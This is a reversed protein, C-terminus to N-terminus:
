AADTPAEARETMTYDRTIQFIRVEEVGHNRAQAALRAAAAGDAQTLSLLYGPRTVSEYVRDGPIGQPGGYCAVLLRAVPDAALDTDPIQPGVRIRYADFHVRRGASQSARHTADRRWRQIATEDEWLQHSLLAGPRDRPTFRELYHLGEHRALVPKLRDVHAFYHEMHGPKPQVDFFLCHM